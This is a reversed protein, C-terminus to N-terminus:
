KSGKRKEFHEVHLKENRTTIRHWKWLLWLTIWRKEGIEYSFDCEWVRCKMSMDRSLFHGVWVWVVTVVVAVVAVVPFTAFGIWFSSV